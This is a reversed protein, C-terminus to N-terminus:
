MAPTQTPIYALERDYTRRPAPRGPMLLYPPLGRMDHRGNMYAALDEPKACVLRCLQVRDLSSMWQVVKAPVQHADQLADTGAAMKQALTRVAQAAPLPKEVQRAIDAVAAGAPQQVWRNAPAASQVPASAGFDPVCKMILRGTAKCTVWVTRTIASIAVRIAAIIQGM